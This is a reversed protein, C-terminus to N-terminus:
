CKSCNRSETREDRWDPLGAWAGSDRGGAAGTVDEVAFFSSRRTSAAGRGSCVAPFALVPIFRLASSWSGRGELGSLWGALLSGDPRGATDDAIGLTTDFPADGVITLGAEGFSTGLLLVVGVLVVGAALATGAFGVTAFGASGLIVAELGATTVVVADLGAAAFGTGTEDLGGGFPEKASRICCALTM